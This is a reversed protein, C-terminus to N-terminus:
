TLSLCRHVLVQTVLVFTGMSASSSRGTMSLTRVQVGVRAPLNLFKFTVCFFIMSFFIVQIHSDWYIPVHGVLSSLSAKAMTDTGRDSTLSKSKALSALLTRSDVTLFSWYPLMTWFSLLHTSRPHGRSTQVSVLCLHRELGRDAKWTQSSAGPPDPRRQTRPALCRGLRERPPWGWGWGLSASVSSPASCRPEPWLVCVCEGTQGEANTHHWKKLFCGFNTGAENRSKDM